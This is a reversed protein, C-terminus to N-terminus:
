IFRINLNEREVVEIGPVVEGGETVVKGKRVVLCKKLDAKNVEEKVRIFDDLKNEKLFNLVEEDDYKWSTSKRTGVTATATKLKFKPDEKRRELLYDSLLGELYLNADDRETETSKIFSQLRLIELKAYAIREEAQDNNKKIEKLCWDASALGVIKFKKDIKEEEDTAKYEIKRDMFEGKTNYNAQLYRKGFSAYDVNQFFTRLLPGKKKARDYMSGVANSSIRWLKQLLM